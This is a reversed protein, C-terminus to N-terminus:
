SIWSHPGVEFSAGRSGEATEEGVPLSWRDSSDDPGQQHSRRHHHHNGAGELAVGNVTCRAGGRARVPRKTMAEKRKKEKEKEEEKEREGRKRKKGAEEKGREMMYLEREKEEEPSDDSPVSRRRM